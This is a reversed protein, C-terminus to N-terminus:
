IINFKRSLSRILDYGDWVLTFDMSKGMPVARDIGRPGYKFLFEKIEAFNIGIYTLTQCKVDCLPLIEELKKANYEFFFGSNYKYNMLDEFLNNIQVRTILQDEQQVLKVNHEAAIKFLATLKGVVQVPSLKYREKVIDHINRWFIEQAKTKEKGLWIIIRPSTCANQDSYFTDNYFDNSVKKKNEIKLYEDANIVAISHRDSFTIETARPKLDSKRIESITRDGGWIVRVDCISSMFDTIKQDSPYKVFCMYNSLSSFEKELLDNICKCIIEVQEFDKAPLRVINTNGALLGTAFSFAFNVPVNSPTSHFVIGKGLRSSLDDYKEKEKLLASKRCWFGFTAVDPYEKGVDMLKKSLAALFNIVEDSFPKLPRAYAMEEITKENGVVFKLNDFNAQM